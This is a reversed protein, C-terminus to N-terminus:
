MGDLYDELHRLKERIFQEYHESESSLYTALREDLEALRQDYRRRMEDQWLPDVADHRERLARYSIRLSTNFAELQRAFHTMAEHTQDLSM